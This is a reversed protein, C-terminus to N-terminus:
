KYVAVTINLKGKKTLSPEAIIKFKGYGRANVVDGKSVNKSNNECLRGNVFVKGERFLDLSDGRSLKCVKSIIGDVRASSVQVAAEEPEDEPFEKAETIIDCKVSTHKVRSLNDCIFEAISDLCFLYAEKEGAKIDGLVDREIGLNMLAGLFDRHSLKDAFKEMLPTIHICVIPFSQDYGMSEPDGFRIMNREANEYGGFVTPSAYHLEKELGYYADAESLSLFSSFTFVNQNYSRDALDRLRNQIEKVDEHSAENKM